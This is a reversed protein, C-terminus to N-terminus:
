TTGAMEHGMSRAIVKMGLHLMGQPCIYQTKPTRVYINLKLRRKTEVRESWRWRATFCEEKIEGEYSSEM